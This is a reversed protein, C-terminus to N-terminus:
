WESAHFSVRMSPNTATLLWYRRTTMGHLIHKPPKRLSPCEKEHVYGPHDLCGAAVGIRVPAECKKKEVSFSM